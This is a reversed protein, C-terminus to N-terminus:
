ALDIEVAKTSLRQLRANKQDLGWRRDAYFELAKRVRVCLSRGEIGYERKVAKIQSASLGAKPVLEIQVITEWDEDVPLDIALPRTRFSSQAAIRVPVYDRYDDHKFSYARLHIREGDSAFCTPAIWQVENSGTTMSTYRIEIAQSQDKARYLKSMIQADSQRHLRPLEDFDSSGSGTIVETWNQHLSEPFLSTHNEAALYTKHGADYLPPTQTARELYAKFDLAAQAPSVGFREILDSRNATGRWAFCKDLYALRERQAYKLDEFMM